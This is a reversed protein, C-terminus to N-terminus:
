RKGVIEEGIVQVFHRLFPTPRLGDDAHASEGGGERLVHEMRAVQRALSPRRADANLTRAIGLATGNGDVESEQDGRLRDLFGGMRGYREKAIRKGPDTIVKKRREDVRVLWEGAGAVTEEVSTGRGARITIYRTFAVYGFNADIYDADCLALNEPPYGADPATHTEIIHCVRRRDGEGVGLDRLVAEARRAGMEGHPEGDPKGIDHLLGAWEVIREDAGLQRAISLSLDRVRLTHEYTYGPWHFGMWEAPWGALRGRVVDELSRIVDGFAGM